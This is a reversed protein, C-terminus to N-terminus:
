AASPVEGINDDTLGRDPEVNSIRRLDVETRGNSYKIMDQYAMGFLLEDAGYTKLDVVTAGITHDRAEITLLLRADAKIMDDATMGHLPSEADIVHMLTWSLMVVPLYSRQLRLENALRYTRGEVSRRLLLVALRATADTMVATTSSAFRIMLTPKGDHRAVVPHKAYVMRARPKSFRVFILGTFLATFTVGCLVDLTSIIHGYTTAPSMVGYGVTSFTEVSFFFADLLSGPHANVIANGGALFLLAFALNIALDIGLMTAFFAPWRLTLAVRYPNRWDYRQAGIKILEDRGLRFEAPKAMPARWAM